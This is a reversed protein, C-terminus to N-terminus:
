QTIFTDTRILHRPDSDAPPCQLPDEPPPIVLACERVAAALTDLELPKNLVAGIRENSFETRTDKVAIIFSTSEPRQEVFERIFRKAEDGPLDLDLLILAYDCETVRGLAEDASTATDVSIPQMRLVTFLLTRLIDDSQVILVRPEGNM